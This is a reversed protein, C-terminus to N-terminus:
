FHGREKGKRVLEKGQQPGSGSRLGARGSPQANVSAPARLLAAGVEPRRWPHNAPPKWPSRRPPKEVLRMPRSRQPAPAAIERYPRAKGKYRIEIRGEEWECV